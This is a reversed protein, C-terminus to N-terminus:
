GQNYTTYVWSTHADTTTYCVKFEAAYGVALTLITVSDSNSKVSCSVALFGTNSIFYTHGLTLGTTAPLTISSAGSALVFQADSVTLTTTTTPLISNTLYNNATLNAHSDLGVWTSAAPVTTVSSVGTGGNAIPVIGSLGGAPVAGWVPDTGNSTLVQNNSGIALRQPGTSSGGTSYYMMDGETTMPLKAPTCNWSTVANSAISVCIAWYATGPSFDAIHGSTNTYIQVLQSSAKNNIILYKTGITITSTDPLVCSQDGSTGTFYQIQGSGVALTQTGSSIATTVTGLYQKASLFSNSDWGAFAGATPSTTVATVGTGGNAIALTGTVASSSGVNVQGFVPDSSSGASVLAVGTTASPAVLNVAGTGAGIVVDHAALATQGTGGNAVPLATGSYSVNVSPTTTANTVGVTLLTASNTSGVSTVTGSAASSSYNWAAATNVTNDVLRFMTISLPAVTTITAGSNSKVTLSNTANQNQVQIQTGINMPGVSTDALTLFVGAGGAATFRQVGPSANTMTAPTTSFSAAGWPLFNYSNINANSDYYATYNPHPINAM